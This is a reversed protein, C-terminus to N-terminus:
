LRPQPFERGALCPSWRHASSCCSFSPKISDLGSLILRPVSSYLPWLSHLRMYRSGAVSWSPTERGPDEGHGKAGHCVQKKYVPVHPESVAALPRLVRLLPAQGHNGRGDPEKGSVVPGRAVSRGVRQPWHTSGTSRVLRRLVSLKSKLLWNRKTQTVNM